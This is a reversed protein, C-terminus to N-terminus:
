AWEYDLMGYVVWESSDIALRYQVAGNNAAVENM